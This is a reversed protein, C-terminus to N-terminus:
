HSQDRKRLLTLGEGIPIMALDVRADRHVHENFERTAVLHEDDGRIVPIGAALTNDVAMLGGPRLLRLLSEYYAIQNTKDADVFAFDFTGAGGQALLEELTKLAPQVRLEILPEVGAERWFARGVRTQEERIDCTILKGTPPLALAIALASYGSLTGLEICYQAGVLTVLFALLQGQEPSIQIASFPQEATAQRLRGLIPPERDSTKLMYDHVDDPLPRFRTLM